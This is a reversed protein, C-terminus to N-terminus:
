NLAKVEVAYLAALDEDLMVRQGRILLIRSEIHATVIVPKSGPADTM